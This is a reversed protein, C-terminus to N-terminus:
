NNTQTVTPLRVTFVAGGSSASGVMIEGGVRSVVQRCIYLGLGTGQGHPKTTFFPEFIMERKEDPVGPGNDRVTVTITRDLRQFEVGVDVRAHERGVLVDHANILLNLWVDDLTGQPALVPPLVADAPHMQLEIVAKNFYSQVLTVTEQISANVDVEIMPANELDPRASSLLRRVVGTARKGARVIASLSEYEPTGAERKDLLLQGDLVITTLPNNIQHAVAAALEGMASLRATQVLKVQAAKLEQLSQELDVVLQANDMATAGQGVVARALDSERKTFVRPRMNDIMVAMGQFKGRTKLPLGLVAFGRNAQLIAQVTPSLGDEEISHNFACNEQYPVVMHNDVAHGGDLWAMGGFAYRIRLARSDQTTVGFEIRDAELLVRLDGLIHFVSAGAREGTGGVLTQACNDLARQARQLRARTLRTAPPGARYGILAGFLTDGMAVPLLLAYGAGVRSLFQEQVPNLNAGAILEVGGYKRLGEYDSASLPVTQEAGARWRAQVFSARCCFSRRDAAVEYIQASHVNLIRGLHECIALLTHDLSLSANASQSADVLAKLENTRRVSEGHIRANNIAIAAYSALNDLLELHRETFLSQKDRNIVGLVGLASGNLLIPVYLLANAFYETKVKHPGRTSMLVPQATIFVNGALTDQTKIRFNEAVHADIGVKARLYLQESNEDPLLIMGEEAGTLRRAAEVVRNLVESLDLVETLSRSLSFLTRIEEDNWDVNVERRPEARASEVVSPLADPVYQPIRLAALLSQRVTVEDLSTLPVDAAKLLDDRRGDDSYILLPPRHRIRSLLLASSEGTEAHTMRADVLAVSFNENQLYYAADRHSYGATVSFGRGDVGEAIQQIFDLDGSAVLLRRVVM